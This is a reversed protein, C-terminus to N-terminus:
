RANLRRVRGASLADPYRVPDAHAADELTTDFAVRAREEALRTEEAASIEAARRTIADQAEAAERLARHDRLTWGGWGGLALAAALTGIQIWRIM